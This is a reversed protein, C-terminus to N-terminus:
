VIQPFPEAMIRRFVILKGDLVPQLQIGSIISSSNTFSHILGSELGSSSSGYENVSIDKSFVTPYIVPSLLIMFIVM